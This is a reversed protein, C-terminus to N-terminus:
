LDKDSVKDSVKDFEAWKALTESSTASLPGLNSM